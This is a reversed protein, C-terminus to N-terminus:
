IGLALFNKLYLSRLSLTCRKGQVEFLFGYSREDESFFCPHCAACAHAGRSLYKRKFDSFLEQSPHNVGKSVGQVSLAGYKRFSFAHAVRKLSFGCRNQFPLRNGCREM